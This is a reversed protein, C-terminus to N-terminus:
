HVTPLYIGRGGGLEARVMEGLATWGQASDLLTLMNDPVSSLREMVEEFDFGHREALDGCLRWVSFWEGEHELCYSLSGAETTLAAVFQDAFDSM